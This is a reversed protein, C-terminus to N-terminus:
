DNLNIIGFADVFIDKVTHLVHKKNKERRLQKKKEKRSLLTQLEKMKDLTLTNLYCMPLTIIEDLSM